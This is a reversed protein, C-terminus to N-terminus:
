GTFTVKMRVPMIYAAGAKAAKKLGTVALWICVSLRLQGSVKKCRISNVSSLRITVIMHQLGIVSELILVSFSAKAADRAASRCGASGRSMAM